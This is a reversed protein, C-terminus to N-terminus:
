SCRCRTTAGPTSGECAAGPRSARPRSLGAFRMSRIRAIEQAIQEKSANATVPRRGWRVVDLMADRDTAAIMQRRDHIAAVVDQRTKYHTPDLGFEEALHDLEDRPLESLQRFPASATAPSATAEERRDAALPPTARRPCCRRTARTASTEPTM